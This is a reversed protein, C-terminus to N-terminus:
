RLFAAIEDRVLDPRENLLWHSAGEVVEVTMDDAHEEWGRVLHPSIAFDKSAMLMRTPTTLRQGAYRRRMPIQETVIARALQSTAEAREPQGALEAYHEVEGAAWTAQADLGIRMLVPWVPLFRVAAPGLVPAMTIMQYWERPLNALVGRVTLWPHYTCLALYRAIREPARLCLLFGVIGGYDHGALRIDDLELADIVGLVDSAMREKDYGTSPADSWGM